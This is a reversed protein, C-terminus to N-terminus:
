IGRANCRGGADDGGKNYAIASPATIIAPARGEQGFARMTLTQFVTTKTDPYHMAQDATTITSLAGMENYRNLTIHYGISDPYHGYDKQPQISLEHIWYVGFSSGVSLIILVWIILRNEVFRM